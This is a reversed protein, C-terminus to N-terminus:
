LTRSLITDDFVTGRPAPNRIYDSNKNNIGKIRSCEPSLWMYHHLRLTSSNLPVTQRQPCGAWVGDNAGDM